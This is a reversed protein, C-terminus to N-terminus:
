IKIKKIQKLINYSLFDPINHKDYNIRKYKQKIKKFNTVPLLEAKFIDIIRGTLGRKYCEYVALKIEDTQGICEFPKHEKLGMMGLFTDELEPTNFLNEHFIEDVVEIDMYAMFGLWVYACKPCRKCWPKDINCSNTYKLYQQDKKLLNFIMYDYFPRLISFHNFNTILNNRIYDNLLNEAEFCKEWQHNVVGNIKEWFFNGEEASLEHGQVLYSYGYSLMIPIIQFVSNFSEAGCLTKIKPFYKLIDGNLFNDTIDMKHQTKAPSLNTIKNILSHQIESKGYISHSYQITSFTENTNELLKISLLSDKGGGNCVLLKTKGESIKVPSFATDFETNITLIEPGIYDALNNEFKHQAFVKNYLINFVQIIDNNLYSSYKKVDYYRPVLSCYKIGLLIGIQILLGYIFHEGYEDELIKFDIIDDYVIITDFKHQDVYHTFSIRNKNFDFKDFRLINTFHTM